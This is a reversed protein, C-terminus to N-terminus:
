LLIDKGLCDLHLEDFRLWLLVAFNGNGNMTNAPKNKEIMKLRNDKSIM